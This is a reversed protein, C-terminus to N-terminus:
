VDMTCLHVKDEDIVSPRKEERVKRNNQKPLYKPQLTAEQVAHAGVCILQVHGGMSVPLARRLPEILNEFIPRIM